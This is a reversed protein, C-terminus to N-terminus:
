ETYSILESLSNNREKLNLKSTIALKTHYHCRMKSDLVLTKVSGCPTTKTASLITQLPFSFFNNTYKQKFM